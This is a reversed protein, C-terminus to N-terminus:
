QLHAQRHRCCSTYHFSPTSTPQLCEITTGIHFATRFNYISRYACCKLLESQYDLQSYPHVCRLVAFGHLVVEGTPHMSNIALRVSTGLFPLLRFQGGPSGKQSGTRIRSTKKPKKREFGEANRKTGKAIDSRKASAITHFIRM